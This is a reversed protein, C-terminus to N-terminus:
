GSFSRCKWRFMLGLGKFEMKSSGSLVEGSGTTKDGIRIVGKM